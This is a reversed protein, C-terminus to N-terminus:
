SPDHTLLLIGSKLPRSSRYTSVLLVDIKHPYAGGASRVKWIHYISNHLSINMFQLFRHDGDTVTVRGGLMAGM